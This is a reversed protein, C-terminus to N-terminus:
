PCRRSASSFSLALGFPPSGVVAPDCIRSPYRKGVGTPRRPAAPSPRPRGERCSSSHCTRSPSTSRSCRRRARACDTPGSRGPHITPRIPPPPPVPRANEAVPSPCRPSSGGAGREASRPCSASRRVPSGIRSPPRRGTARGTRGSACVNPVRSTEPAPRAHGARSSSRRRAPGLIVAARSPSTRPRRRPTGRSYKTAPSSGPTSFATRAAISM